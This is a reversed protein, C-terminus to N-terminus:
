PRSLFQFLDQLFLSCIVTIPLHVPPSPLSCRQQLPPRFSDVRYLPPHFLSAACKRRFAEAFTATFSAKPRSLRDIWISCAVNNHRRHSDVCGCTRRRLGPLRVARMVLGEAQPGGDDKQPIRQRERYNQRLWCKEQIAECGAFRRSRRFMASIKWDGFEIRRCM